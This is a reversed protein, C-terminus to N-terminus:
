VRRRMPRMLLAQHHRYKEGQTALPCTELIRFPKVGARMKNKSSKTRKETKRQEKESKLDKPETRLTICITL